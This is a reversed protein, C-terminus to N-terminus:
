HYPSRRSRCENGVRREESRGGGVVVVFVDVFVDVVVVGGGIGCGGVGVFVDVVFVGSGCDVVVFVDVFFFM